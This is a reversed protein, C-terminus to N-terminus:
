LAVAHASLWQSVSLPLKLDVSCLATLWQGVSTASVYSAGFFRELSHTLRGSIQSMSKVPEELESKTRLEMSRILTAHRTELGTLSTTTSPM